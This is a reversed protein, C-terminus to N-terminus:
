RQYELQTLVGEQIWQAPHYVDITADFVDWSGARGQFPPFGLDPDMPDASISLREDIVREGFRAMGHPDGPNNPKKNSPEKNFPFGQGQNNENGGNGMVSSRGLNDVLPRMFDCVAQPELITTYRGPEVAVPNRSKLCKDLAIASLQEGDIKTWDHGDVGAWGSGVGKPDRVTVSYQAWTYQVYRALGTSQIYAMSTASVQIYGASFMGAQKSSEMLRHATDARAAADLQYTPTM